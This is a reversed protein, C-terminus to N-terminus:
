PQGIGVFDLSADRIAGKYRGLPCTICSRIRGLLKTQQCCFIFLYFNHNAVGYDVGTGWRVLLYYGYYVPSVQQGVLLSM